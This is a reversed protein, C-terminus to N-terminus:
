FIMILYQFCGLYKCSGAFMKPTGGLIPGNGCCGDFGIAQRDFMGRDFYSKTIVDVGNCWNNRPVCTCMGKSFCWVICIDCGFCCTLCCVSTFKLFTPMVVPKNSEYGNELVHFYQRDDQYDWDSPCM